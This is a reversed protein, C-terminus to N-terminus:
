ESWEEEACEQALESLRNLILFGAAEKQDAALAAVIRDESSWDILRLFSLVREPDRLMRGAEETIADAADDLLGAMDIRPDHHGTTITRATYDGTGPAIM